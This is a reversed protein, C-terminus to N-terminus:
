RRVPPKANKVLRITLWGTLGAVALGIGLLRYKYAGGVAPRNSTWFGSPRESLIEHPREATPPEALVPAALAFVFGIALVLRRM